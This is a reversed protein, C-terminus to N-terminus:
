PQGGTNPFQIKWSVHEEINHLETNLALALVSLKEQLGVLRRM